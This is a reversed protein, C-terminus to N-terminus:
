LDRFLTGDYLTVWDDTQQTAPVGVYGNSPDYKWHDNLSTSAPDTFPNKPIGIGGIGGPTTLYPGRYTDAPVVITLDSESPAVLDSLSGPNATTDSFFQSIATRLNHLDERLAAEKAKRVAGLLRPIVILALVSIVAIVILLEILTFGRRGTLRHTM